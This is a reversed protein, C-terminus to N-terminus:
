RKKGLGLKRKFYAKCVRKFERSSIREHPENVPVYIRSPRRYTSLSALDYGSNKYVQSMYKGQYPLKFDADERKRMAYMLSISSLKTWDLTDLLENSVPVIWSYNGADKAQVDATLHVASYLIEYGNAAALDEYFSPEFLYYGNGGHMQQCHLFVGGPRCARHMTRYVESVNFMHEACGFDTVLDYANWHSEDEFATNLDHAIANNEANLDFCRYEKFGLLHYLEDAFRCVGRTEWGWPEFNERDYGPVAYARMAQDFDKMPIHLEQSGIELVSNKENFHGDGWLGLIAQLCSINIGM